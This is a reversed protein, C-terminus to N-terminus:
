AHFAPHYKKFEEFSSLFYNDKYICNTYRGRVSVRMINSRRDFDILYNQDNHTYFRGFYGKFRPVAVERSISKM